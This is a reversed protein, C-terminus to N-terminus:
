VSSRQSHSTHEWDRSEIRSDIHIRSVLLIWIFASIVIGLSKLSPSSVVSTFLIFSIAYFFGFTHMKEFGESSKATWMNYLIFLLLPTLALEVYYIPPLFGALALAVLFIYPSILIVTTFRVARRVTGFVTATTKTGAKKDGSYDPLNKVTGYTFMFYTVLWLVPNLINIQGTVSTGALFALGVAGSFSILSPLPHAKFRLPPLSYFASNFIGFALVIMYALGLYISLAASFGYFIIVSGIAARQGMQDLWFVRRPQNVVDEKRDAYANVINTAATVFSAIILGVGLQAVNWGATLVYGLLFSAAPFIWTRPRSLRFVSAITHGSIPVAGFAQLQSSPQLQSDYYQARKKQPKRNAM